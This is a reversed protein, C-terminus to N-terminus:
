EAPLAHDKHEACIWEAAFYDSRSKYRLVSKVGKDYCNQCLYVPQQAQNLSAQYAHGGPGLPVLQYQSREDVKSKLDAHSREMERLTAQLESNKEAMQLATGYAALLKESMDSLASKVKADDRADLGTKALEILGKIGSLATAIEM